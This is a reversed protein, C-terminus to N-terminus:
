GGGQDDAQQDRSPTFSRNVARITLLGAFGAQRVGANISGATNPGPFRAASAADFNNSGKLSRPALALLSLKKAAFKPASEPGFVDSITPYSLFAPIRNKPQAAFLFNQWAPKYFVCDPEPHPPPRDFTPQPTQPLWNPDAPCDALASHGAVACFVVISALRPFLDLSRNTM